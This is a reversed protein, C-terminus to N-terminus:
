FRENLGQYMKEYLTLLNNSSFESRVNTRIQELKAVTVNNLSRMVKKALADPDGAPYLEGWNGNKLLSRHAPIDSAVVATNRQMAEILVNPCLETVSPNVIVKSDLLQTLTENHNRKGLFEIHDDVELGKSLAVLSKMEEGDGVVKAKLGYSKKLLLMGLILDEVRKYASLRGAFIVDTKKENFMDNGRASREEVYNRVIKVEGSYGLYRYSTIGVSSPATPVCVGCVLASRVIAVRRRFTEVDRLHSSFPLITPFTRISLVFRRNFQHLKEITYIALDRLSFTLNVQIAQFNNLMMDLENVSKITHVTVSESISKSTNRQGPNILHVQHGREALAKALNMTAIQVGGLTYFPHDHVFAISMKHCDIKYM